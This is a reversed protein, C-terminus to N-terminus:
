SAFAMHMGHESRIDSRSSQARQDQNPIKPTQGKSSSLSVSELVPQSDSSIGLPAPTPPLSWYRSPPQKLASTGSARSWM